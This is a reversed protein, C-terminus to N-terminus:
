IWETVPDAERQAEELLAWRRHTRQDGTPRKTAGRRKKKRPAEQTEDAPGNGASGTAGTGSITEKEEEIIEDKCDEQKIDDGDNDKKEHAPPQSGGPGDTELKVDSGDPLIPPDAVIGHGLCVQQYYFYMHHRHKEKLEQLRYINDSGTSLWIQALKRMYIDNIQQQTPGDGASDGQQARGPTVSTTAPPARCPLPAASGDTAEESSVRRRVPPTARATVPPRYALIMSAWWTKDKSKVKQDCGPPEPFNGNMAARIAATMQLTAAKTLADAIM